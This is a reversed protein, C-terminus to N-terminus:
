FSIIWNCEVQCKYYNFLGPVLPCVYIIYTDEISVVMRGGRGGVRTPIRLLLSNHIIVKKSRTLGLLIRAKDDSIKMEDNWKEIFWWTSVFLIRFTHSLFFIKTRFSFYKVFNWLKSFIKFFTKNSVRAFIECFIKTYKKHWLM